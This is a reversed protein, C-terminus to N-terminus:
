FVGASRIRRCSLCSRLLRKDGQRLNITVIADLAAGRTQYDGRALEEKIKQLDSPLGCESLYNLAAVKVQSQTDEAFWSDLFLDRGDRVHHLPEEILAM